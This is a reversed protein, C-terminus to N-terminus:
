PTPNKVSRLWAPRWRAVTIVSSYMVVRAANAAVGLLLVGAVTRLDVTMAVVLQACIVLGITSLSAWWAVWHRFSAITGLVSLFYGIGAGLTVLWVVDALERYNPGLLKLLLDPATVGLLAIVVAIGVAGLLLFRVRQWLFSEATKALAPGVLMPNAAQLFGMIRSLRGLAGVSAIQHASGFFGAVIITIQGQFAGFIMNPLGPLTLHLLEAQEKSPTSAPKEFSAGAVRRLGFHNVALGMVSALSATVADLTGSWWFVTITLSKLLEGGTACQYLSGLRGQMQLPAGFLDNQAVLVNCGLLSLSLVLVSIAPYDIRLASYWLLGLGLISVPILIWFRLRLGAFLYRGIKAKDTWDTGVLSIITPTMGFGLMLGSFGLAATFVAYVAFDQIGLLWVFLLGNVAQVAQLVAQGTGFKALRKAWMTVGVTM